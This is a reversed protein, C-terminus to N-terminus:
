HLPALFRSSIWQQETPHIRRWDGNSEYVEVQVGRSLHKLITAAGDPAKRVNLTNANITFSGAALPKPLTAPELLSLSAAVLPIFNAAANQVKNGGFFASGPCTKTSGTGNTRQGTNLDYWHHYVLSDTGPELSFKHCLRATLDIITERHAASMQDGNADFNGVHEICIGGTNAGKIGAPIKDLGRCVAISGDPFTTLNQAIEAFGRELHANEMAQLLAFHNNGKFTSYNPMWTHHHQVLVVRRSVSITELWVSFDATGDFLLFKGQKRM